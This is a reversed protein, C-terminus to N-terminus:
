HGLKLPAEAKAHTQGELTTTNVTMATGTHIKVEQVPSIQEKPKKNDAQIYEKQSLPKQESGGRCPVCKHLHM